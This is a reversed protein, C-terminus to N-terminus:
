ERVLTWSEAHGRTPVCGLLACDACEESCAAVAVCRLFILKIGDSTVNRALQTEGAVVRHRTHSNPEKGPNGKFQVNQNQTEFLTKVNVNLRLAKSPPFGLLSNQFFYDYTKFTIIILGLKCVCTFLFQYLFCCITFRWKACGKFHFIEGANKKKEGHATGQWCHQTLLVVIVLYHTGVLTWLSPERLNWLLRAKETITFDERLNTALERGSWHQLMMICSASYPVFSQSAGPGHGTRQGTVSM